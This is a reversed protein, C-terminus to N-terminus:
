WWHAEHRIIEGRVDPKPSWKVHRWPMYFRHRNMGYKGFDPTSRYKSQSVTSLLSARDVFEFRKALIIIWFSKIM